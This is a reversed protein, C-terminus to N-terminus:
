NLLYVACPALCLIGHAAAVVLDNFDIFIVLISILLITFSLQRVWRSGVAGGNECGLTHLTWIAFFPSLEHFLQHRHSILFFLFLFPYHCNFSRIRLFFHNTFFSRFLLFSRSDFIDLRLFVENESRIEM